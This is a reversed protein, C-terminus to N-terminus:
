ESEATHGLFSKGDPKAPGATSATCSYIVANTSDYNNVGDVRRMRVLVKLTDNHDAAPSLWNLNAIGNNGKIAVLTPADNPNPDVGTDTFWIAWHTAAYENNRDFLYQAKVQGKGGAAPVISINTPEDPLNPALDYNNDLKLDSGIVNQSLLGWKNRKRLVFQYNVNPNLNPIVFPPALLDCLTIDFPEVPIQAPLTKFVAFPTDYNPVGDTILYLEYQELEDTAIRFLGEGVNPSIQLFGKNNVDFEITAHCIKTFEASEACNSDFEVAAHCIKTFEASEACSDSFSIDAHCSVEHVLAVEQYPLEQLWISAHCSVNYETMARRFEM